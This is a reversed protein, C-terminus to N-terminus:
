TRWALNRWHNKHAIISFYWRPARHPLGSSCAREPLETRPARLYDIMVPDDSPVRGLPRSRLEPATGRGSGAAAPRGPGREVSAPEDPSGRESVQAELVAARAALGASRAALRRAEALQSARGSSGANRALRVARAYQTHLVSLACRTAVLERRREDVVRGLQAVERGPRPRRGSEDSSVDDGGPCPSSGLGRAAM